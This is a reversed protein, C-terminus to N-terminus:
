NTKRANVTVHNMIWDDTPVTTDIIEEEEEESDNNSGNNDEAVTHSSTAAEVVALVPRPPGKPGEYKITTGSFTYSHHPLEDLRVQWM